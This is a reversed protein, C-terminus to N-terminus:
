CLDNSLVDLLVLLSIYLQIYRKWVAHVDATEHVHLNETGEIILLLDSSQQCDLNHTFIPPPPYFIVQLIPSGRVNPEGPVWPIANWQKIVLYKISKKPQLHVVISSSDDNYEASPTVRTVKSRHFGCFLQKEILIKLPNYLYCVYTVM